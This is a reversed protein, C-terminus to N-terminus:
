KIQWQSDAKSFVSFILSLIYTYSLCFCIYDLPQQMIRRLNLTFLVHVHIYSVLSTICVSYPVVILIHDSLSAQDTLKQSLQVRLCLYVFSSCLTILFKLARRFKWFQHLQLSFIFISILCVYNCLLTLIDFIINIIIWKM